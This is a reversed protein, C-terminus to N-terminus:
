FFCQLWPDPDHSLWLSHERFGSSGSAMLVATFSCPSSTQLTFSVGPSMFVQGSLKEASFIM